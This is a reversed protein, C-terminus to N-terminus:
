RLPRILGPMSCCGSRRRSRRRWPRLLPTQGLTSALNPKTGAALLIKIAELGGREAAGLLATRGLYAAQANVDAGHNILLRLCAPDDHKEYMVATFGMRDTANVDKDNENLLMEMVDARGEEAAMM